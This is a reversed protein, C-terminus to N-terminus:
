FGLIFGKSCELFKMCKYGGLCTSFSFNKRVSLPPSNVLASNLQNQSFIPILLSCVIRYLGEELSTASLYVMGKHSISLNMSDVVLRWWPNLPSVKFITTWTQLLDGWIDKFPPMRSSTQKLLGVEYSWRCLILCTHKFIITGTLTVTFSYFKLM